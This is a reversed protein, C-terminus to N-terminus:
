RKKRVRKELPASMMTEISSASSLTVSTSFQSRSSATATTTTRNDIMVKNEAAKGRAISLLREINATKEDAMVEDMSQTSNNDNNDTSGQDAIIPEMAKSGAEIDPKTCIILRCRNEASEISFEANSMKKVMEISTQLHLSSHETSPEVLLKSTYPLFAMFIILQDATYEDVCAGSEILHSLKGMVSDIIKTTVPYDKFDDRSCELHNASLIVNTTTHACIQVGLSSNSRKAQKHHHRNNQAGPVHIFDFTIEKYDTGPATFFKQLRNKLEAGLEQSLTNYSPGEGFIVCTVKDIQGRDTLSFARIPLTPMVKLAVEGGGVPYYGRKVVEFQIDFGISRLLPLLVLETHDIPPSFNVNTGGKLTLSIHSNNTPSFTLCPLAAQTILSIAGATGCDSTYSAQYLPSSSSSSSSSPCSQLPPTIELVCSGIEGGKMRTGQLISSLLAVVSVHQASLGPKPRNARINVVRLPKRTILSCATTVRLIQGGGELTSGDILIPQASTM